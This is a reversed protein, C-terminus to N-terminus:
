VSSKCWNHGLLLEFDHILIKTNISNNNNSTTLGHLDRSLQQFISKIKKKNQLFYDNLLPCWFYMRNFNFNFILFFFLSIVDNQTTFRYNLLM